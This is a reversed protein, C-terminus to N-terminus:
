VPVQRLISIPTVYQQQLKKTHGHGTDLGKVERLDINRDFKAGKFFLLGVHM